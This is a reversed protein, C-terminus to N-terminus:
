ENEEKRRIVRFDFLDRFSRAEKTVVVGVGQTTPTRRYFRENARNFARIMFWNNIDYELEFEGMFAQQSALMRNDGYSLNTTIRLRDNLLRTSVDVGMRVNDLTGDVSELNTSISWNDSLASAFLADLGRALTNAAFRSFVSPGFNMEPSGESPIFSGTTALYAFQLIKTEETNIFSNVRQQIDNSSEPLEIDYKLDMAELNGLIHLLANVPVRTNALETTFTPSLASLDAKVPLYATINFQTNLPNGEMTLRSGERITFDITRLNQLNYHFKGSNIEYDGYLRVPPTSKSNFDVNVEGEGSVELANGTTPDLVVAAELMPTLNVTARMVIPIGSSLRSRSKEKEGGERKLFALSDKEQPTNIYVIGSYETARATQPLVVTVESRSTSSLTGDGYIGAPSGSVTLDGTLRLNGYAMLDTRNQNNLLMFDNMRISATYAMGGFNAHSLNFNVSATRNNQDRIVLNRLGVNDPNIDITDSVSYTVNTFAVKMKGNEIGLWGRTIPASPKGTIAVESNLAGSLESFVNATLPQIAKLDFEQIRFNVDMPLPSKDGLPIYGTIDLLHKEGNVLYANLDLGSYLNDWNGEITFTGITDNYVTINEIRLDETHVMPSELLQRLYIDGKISGAFHSVNFAALINALETNNFYVRIFDAESKSAVGEIGLLLMNEERLGFNHINIRDKRYRITADNLDVRKDNFILSTPHIRIDSALQDATDRLFDMTVKVEGNSETQAQRLEYFLKNTVQDSSGTTVLHLNIFGNDQVLYTLLDVAMGSANDSQLNLRTERIDNSGWMLRPLYGDIRVPIASTMDVQGKLTAHEVNYVPLGFAYSLDETNKILLDLQFNNIGATSDEPAVIASPLHTHLVQMLERGITSFYYDGSMEAELFSSYLQLRKGAEGDSLAQLYIPGPNYIFNSDVLSTNDIVLMGTMEDLTRGSLAGDITLSVRPDKWHEMRLFPRLDLQDIRGELDFRMEEGFTIDGNLDLGNREGESTIHATVNSGSYTGDFNIGSYHYGKYYASEVSGAANVTVLSPEIKLTVDAALSAEGLGSNEGLINALQIEGARLPGQFTMMKFQNRISGMGKLGVEGQGTVVSGDYHFGNLSGNAEMRLHMDGLARLQPPSVFGPPGIRIFSQLDEQSVSLDHVTVRLESKEFHRFDAIMGTLNISTEAGYRFLFKELNAVPFMGEAELDFSLPKNLHALRSTFLAIDRPDAQKSGAKVSFAKSERDFFADAVELVTNNLHLQLGDSEIRRGKGEVSTNLSYLTLGANVETFGLLAIDAQMKEISEFDAKGRFNFHYLDIHNVDFQGPTLPASDIHYHLSAEKILLEEATIRWKSKEVKTSEKEGAFSDILFQFNFPQDPAARYVYAVMNELGAKEVFIRKKLLELAHIRVAVRKVYLLTDQQRDELYLGKLEVTNFLKIRIGELSAETGIVPKLKGIAIDAARKQLAPISLAIYLIINVLIISVVIIAIIRAIKKAM